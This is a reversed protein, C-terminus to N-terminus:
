DSGPSWHPTQYRILDGVYGNACFGLLLVMVLAWLITALAKRGAHGRKVLALLAACWLLWFSILVCALGVQVFADSRRVRWTYPEAQGNQWIVALSVATLLGASIAMWIVAREAASRARRFGLHAYQIPTPATPEHLEVEREM